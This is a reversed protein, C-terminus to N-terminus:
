ALFMIVPMKMYSMFQDQCTHIVYRNKIINFQIVGGGKGSCRAFSSLMSIMLSSVGSDAVDRMSLMFIGIGSATKSSLAVSTAHKLLSISFNFFNSM